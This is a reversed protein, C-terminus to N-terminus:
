SLRRKGKISILGTYVFEPISRIKVYRNAVMIKVFGGNFLFTAIM